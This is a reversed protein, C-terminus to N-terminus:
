DMWVEENWRKLAPQLGDEVSWDMSLDASEVISKVIWHHIIDCKSWEVRKKKNNM